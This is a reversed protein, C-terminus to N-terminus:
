NNAHHTMKKMERMALYSMTTWYICYNLAHAMAVGSLDFQLVLGRSLLFFLLSFVVETVVYCKVMARGIMIYALIWSGIKIVDGLLQWAFLERMPAFDATFLVRIIFDRLLYISLAAITVIPMVFRYVKVIETKLEAATRIEALRPLYYVSLTSTVVMLYIESVKWIAHWYGAAPLGLHAALHDRILIYSAPTVLASTLGMLAFGSLEKAAFKDIKGWLFDRKFWARRAVLTATTCLMIAPNIIFALLAGYLGLNYALLGTVIMAVVSGTINATVYIGVEKKGNVIALLINNLAMAPLALALWLFINTMDARQLVWESLQRGAVLLILGACVSALMSFRIATQWVKHQQIADDFHQATAKTVGSSVLGGALNTLITVANQFQGIIAYGTPGVYVALIKNLVLASAVRITVAIANLLSTKVLSM